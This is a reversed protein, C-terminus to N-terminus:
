TPVGGEPMKIFIKCTGQPHIPGKVVKCKGCTGAAPAPLYLSCAVCEREPLPSKDKYELTTRLQVDAPELGPLGDCVLAKEKRCAVAGTLVALATFTGGLMERRNVVAGERGRSLILRPGARKAM